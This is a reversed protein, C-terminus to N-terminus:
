PRSRRQSSPLTSAPARCAIVTNLCQSLADGGQNLVFLPITVLLLPVVVFHRVCEVLVLVARWGNQASLLEPPTLESLRLFALRVDDCEACVLLALMLSIMFLTMWDWPQMAKVNDSPNAYPTVFGSVKKVCGDCMFLREKAKIASIWRTEPHVGDGRNVMAYQHEPATGLRLVTGSPHARSLGEIIEDNSGFTTRLNAGGALVDVATAVASENCFMAPYACPECTPKGSPTFNIWADTCYYGGACDNSDDCTQSYPDLARIIAILTVMQFFVLAAVSLVGLLRLKTTMRPNYCCGYVVAQHWSLPAEVEQQEGAEDAGRQTPAADIAGNVAVRAHREAGAGSKYRARSVPPLAQPSLQPSSEPRSSRCQFPLFSGGNADSAPGVKAM